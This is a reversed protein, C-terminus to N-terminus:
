REFILMMADRQEQNTRSTIGTLSKFADAKLKRSTPKIQVVEIKLFDCMEIIKYAVEHNRGTNNGIKTNKAASGFNDKHWNSKNLFGCEVFVIIKSKSNTNILENLKSFLEFFTLNLLQYNESEKIAVGNKDVDPDVGILIM